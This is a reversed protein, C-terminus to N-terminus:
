CYAGRYSEREIDLTKPNIFIHEKIFCWVVDKALAASSHYFPKYLFCRNFATLYIPKFM